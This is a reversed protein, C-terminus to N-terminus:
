SLPYGREPDPNDLYRDRNEAPGKHQLQNNM